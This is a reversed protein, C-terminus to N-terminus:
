ASISTAPSYRSIQKVLSCTSALLFCSIRNMGYRYTYTLLGRGIGLGALLYVFFILPRSEEGAHLRNIADIAEGMIAPLAVQILTSVGAIGLTGFVLFKHNRFIPLIRKFWSRSKDPNIRVRPPKYRPTVGIPEYEPKVPDDAFYAELLGDRPMPKATADTATM